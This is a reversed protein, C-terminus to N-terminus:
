KQVQITFVKLYNSSEDMKNYVFDSPLRHSALYQHKVDALGKEIERKFRDPNVNSANTLKSSLVGQLSNGSIPCDTQSLGKGCFFDTKTVPLVPHISYLSM